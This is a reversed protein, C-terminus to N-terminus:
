DTIKKTQWLSNNCCNQLGSNLEGLERAKTTSSNIQEEMDRKQNQLSELEQELNTAQAELERILNSSEKQYGEHM